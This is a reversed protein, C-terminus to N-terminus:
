RLPRPGGFNPASDLTGTLITVSGDPRSYSAGAGESPPAYGRPIRGIGARVEPRSSESKRKALGESRSTMAQKLVNRLRRTMSEAMGRGQFPLEDRSSKNRRRARASRHGDRRGRPDILRGEMYYQQRRRGRRSLGLRPEYPHSCASPRVVELGAHSPEGASEKVANASTSTDACVNPWVAGM